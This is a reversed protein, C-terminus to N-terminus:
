TEKGWKEVIIGIIVGGIIGVSLIPLYAHTIIADPLSILLGVLAGRLWGPLPMSTAGILFGIAFRNTFAGLMAVTKDPMELPIMLLVDIIGFILGCLIGLPIRKM